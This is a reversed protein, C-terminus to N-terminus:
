EGLVLMSHFQNARYQYNKGEYSIKVTGEHSLTFGAPDFGLLKVVARQAWNLSDLTDARKLIKKAELHIIVRSSGESAVIDLVGPYRYGTVEDILHIGEDVKVRPFYVVGHPGALILFNVPVGGFKEPTVLQFYNVSMEPGHFRFSTWERSFEIIRANSYTHDSYAWGKIEKDDDPTRIRGEFRIRPCTISLDWFLKQDKGFIIRGRGPPNWAPSLCNLELSLVFNEEGIHLRYSNGTKTDGADRFYNNELKLDLGEPSAEFASRKKQFNFQQLSGDPKLFSATVFANNKRVIAESLGIAARVVEGEDTYGEITWIENLLGKEGLHIGFDRPSPDSIEGLYSPFVFIPEGAQLPTSSFVTGIFLFAFFIYRIM